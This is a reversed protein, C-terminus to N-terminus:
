KKKKHEQIRMELDFDLSQERLPIQNASLTLSWVLSNSINTIEHVTNADDLLLM